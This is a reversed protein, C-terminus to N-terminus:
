PITKHLYQHHAKCLLILNEPHHRGGQSWPKLHHFNLWRSSDCRACKGKYKLIVEHRVKAPIWRNQISSSKEKWNRSGAKSGFRSGTGLGKGLDKRVQSSVPGQNKLPDMEPMIRDSSDQQIDIQNGKRSLAQQDGSKGPMKKRLARQAKLLPDRNKLYESTMQKLSDELSAPSGLSQSVLDQVQELKKMLEESISFELRIRMEAIYKKKEPLDRQPRTRAIDKELERQTMTKGKLIWQQNDGSSNNESLVPTLRRAQSLSLGGTIIEKKLEPIKYSKRLVASFNYAVSESLKLSQTIYTFLSSYGMELFIRKRDVKELIVLLESECRKYEKAKNLASKHIPNM